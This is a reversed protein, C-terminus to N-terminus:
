GVLHCRGPTHGGSRRKTAGRVFRCRGCRKVAAVVVGSVDAVDGDGDCHDSGHSPDHRAARGGTRIGDARCDPHCDGRASDDLGHPELTLWDGVATDDDTNGHGLADDYANGHGLTDDDTNGHRVADDNTSRHRLADRNRDADGHGHGVPVDLPREHGVPDSDPIEVPPM